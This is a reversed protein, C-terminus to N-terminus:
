FVLLAESSDPARKDNTGRGQERQLKRKRQHKGMARADVQRRLSFNLIEEIGDPAKWAGKLRRILRGM